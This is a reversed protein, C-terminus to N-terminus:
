KTPTKPPLNEYHKSVFNTYLKSVFNTYLKSVFNTYLKSVFNTYFKGTYETGFLLLINFSIAARQMSSTVPRGLSYADNM